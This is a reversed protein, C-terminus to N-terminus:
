PVPKVATRAGYRLWNPVVRDLLAPWAHLGSYGEANSSSSGRLSLFKEALPWLGLKYSARLPFMTAHLLGHSLREGATAYNSAVVGDVVITGSATLPAFMGRSSQGRDVSLIRSSGSVTLLRDGPRLEAAFHSTPQTDADDSGVAFVLHRASVRLQGLEHFLTVFGQLSSGRDAHLFGLIPEFSGDEESTRVEDGIRLQDLATPGRGRVFASAEGPFCAGKSELCGAGPRTLPVVNGWHNDLEEACYATGITPWQSEPKKTGYCMDTVHGGKLNWMWDILKEEDQPNECIDGPKIGGGSFDVDYMDPMQLYTHQGSQGLWSAHNPYQDYTKLHKLMKHYFSGATLIPLAHTLAFANAFLIQVEDHKSNIDVFPINPFNKIANEWMDQITLTGANCATFEHPDMVAVNCMKYQTMLFNMTFSPNPVVGVFSDAIVRAGSEDYNDAYHRLITNAWFQLALSGASLGSVWFHKLKKLGGDDFQDKTWDIAAKANWYGRQERNAGDYSNVTDGAHMDGSCYMVEIMTFDKVPNDKNTTDYLGDWMYEKCNRTCFKYKYTMSDWCAGGGQFHFFLKDSDGRVVRFWYDSGDMCATKGYTFVKYSVGPQFDKLKSGLNAKQFGASSVYGENPVWSQMASGQVILDQYTVASSSTVALEEADEVKEAVLPAPERSAGLRLTSLGPLALASGLALGLKLVANAVGTGRSRRADAIAAGAEETGEALLTLEQEAKGEEAAEEAATAM